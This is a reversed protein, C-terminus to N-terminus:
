KKGINLSVGGGAATKGLQSAFGSGLEDWFSPSAASASEATNLSNNAGGLSTAYEGAELQAPVESAALVSKGYDAGSAIRSQNANAEDTSLTRQNERAAEAAVADAAGANQGTRKALTSEQNQIAASGADATGALSQNQATQYAGGETYPNNAAYKSLQAEYGQIGQNEAALADTAATQDAGSNTQATTSINASQSRSM